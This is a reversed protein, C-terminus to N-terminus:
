TTSWVFRHDCAQSPVAANSSSSTAGAAGLSARFPDEVERRQFDKCVSAISEGALVRQAAERIVEAEEDIITIRDEAYGCPRM